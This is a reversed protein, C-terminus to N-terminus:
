EYSKTEQGYFISVLYEKGMSLRKNKLPHLINMGLVNNERIRLAKRAIKINNIQKTFRMKYLMSKWLAFKRRKNPIATQNEPPMKKIKFM